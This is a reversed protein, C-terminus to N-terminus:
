WRNVAHEIFARVHHFEKRGEETEIYGDFWGYVQDCHTDVVVLKNQTYNDYTPTFHLEMKGEEDRLKWPQMDAPFDEPVPNEPDERCVFLKGLKYAKKNYFFMNETAYRLDGFGWGINFGFPVGDIHSTLNGWYWEHTYPWVGRGWDLLGTSGEMDITKEGFQAWGSAKYYNEKYNLYFQTPNAFPTAIVMKENDPDNEAVIRINVKSLDKCRGKVCLIREKKTVRFSMYLHKDKFESFSEGEPDRDLNAVYLPKMSNIEWKKGTDLDILTATVSCIYTLHGITLQVAYHDKIFQYFNWEKLIWPQKVNERNYIYNMKKAYGKKLITGNKGLLPIKKKIERQM